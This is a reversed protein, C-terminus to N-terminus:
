LAALVGKEAGEPEHLLVKKGYNLIQNTLLLIRMLSCLIQFFCYSQLWECALANHFDEAARKGWGRPKYADEKLYKEVLHQLQKKEESTM